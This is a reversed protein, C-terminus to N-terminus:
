IDDYQYATKTEDISGPGDIAQVNDAPDAGLKHEKFRRGGEEYWGSPYVIFGNEDPFRFYERLALYYRYFRYDGWSWAEPEWKHFDAVLKKCVVPGFTMGRLSYRLLEWFPGRGDTEPYKDKDEVLESLKTCWDVMHYPGGELKKGKTVLKVLKECWEFFYGDSSRDAICFWHSAEYDFKYIGGIELGEALQPYDPPAVVLVVNKIIEETEPCRNFWLPHRPKDWKKLDSYAELYERTPM